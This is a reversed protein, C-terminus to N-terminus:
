DFLTAAQQPRDELIDYHQVKRNTIPCRDIKSVHVINEDELDHLLRTINSRELGTLKVLSRSSQAGFKRIAALVKVRDDVPKDSYKLLDYSILQTLPYEKGRVRVKKTFEHM